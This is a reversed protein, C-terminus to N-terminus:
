STQNYRSSIGVQHAPIYPSQSSVDVELIGWVLIFLGGMIGSKLYQGREKLERRTHLLVALEM